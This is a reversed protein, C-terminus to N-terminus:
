GVGSSGINLDSKRIELKLSVFHDALESGIGNVGVTWLVEKTNFSALSSWERFPRKLPFVNATDHPM